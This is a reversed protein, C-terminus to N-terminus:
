LKVSRLPSRSANGFTGGPNLISNAALSGSTLFGHAIPAKFPSERNAREVDVHIWQHDHTADAFQDIMQQTVTLWDSVAVEKGKYGKLAEAEIQVKAM